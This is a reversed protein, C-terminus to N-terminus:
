DQRLFGTWRVTHGCRDCKHIEEDRWGTESTDYIKEKHGFIFCLFRIVGKGFQLITISKIGIYRGHRISFNSQIILRM